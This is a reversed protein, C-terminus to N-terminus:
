FLREFADHDENLTALTQHFDEAQKCQTMKTNICRLYGLTMDFIVKSTRCGKLLFLDLLRLSQKEPLM